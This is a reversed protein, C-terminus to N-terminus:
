LFRSARTQERLERAVLKYIQMAATSPELRYLNQRGHRRRSVIGAGRLVALHQSADFSSVGVADALENVSAEGRDDLTEILRLRVPQGVVKLHNGILEAAAASVPRSLM